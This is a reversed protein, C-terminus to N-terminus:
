RSKYIEDFAEAMCEEPVKPWNCEGYKETCIEMARALLGAHTYKGCAGTVLLETFKTWYPADEYLGASKMEAVIRDVDAELSIFEPEWKDGNGHLLMFQYSYPADVSAGVAGPNLIHVTGCKKEGRMHTHGCIIYDAETEAVVENLSKEDLAFKENVKRPSGHCILIDPMGANQINMAIPLSNFFEVDSVTLHRNAYRIMGITSPYADWEPHEKGLDDLQYNEKNGRLFFCKKSSRLKYLIEMTKEIGPFEGTYDGLFCYEDVNKDKLYDLCAELAIHNGHIDSLVAIVM